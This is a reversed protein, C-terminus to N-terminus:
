FLRFSLQFSIAPYWQMLSLYRDIDAIEQTDSNGAKLNLKEGNQRLTYDGMYLVGIEFKFGVRQHTVARGVGLGFYPKVFGGFQVDLDAKGDTLDIEHGDLDLTPWDYGDKLQAPQNVNNRDALYGNVNANFNGLYVGATLHFIGGTPHYDALLRGHALSLKGKAHYDPIYGFANYLENESNDTILIDYYRSQYGFYDVGARANFYNGLPTAAELGFGGTSARLSLNLHSFPATDEQAHLQLVSAATIALWLFKMFKCQKMM